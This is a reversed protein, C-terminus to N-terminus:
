CTKIFSPGLTHAASRSAQAASSDASSEVLRPFYKVQFSHICSSFSYVVRGWGSLVHVFAGELRIQWGPEHFCTWSMLLQGVSIYYGQAFKRLAESM